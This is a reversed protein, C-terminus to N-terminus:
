KQVVSKVVLPASWGIEIKCGLAALGIGVGLRDDDVVSGIEM